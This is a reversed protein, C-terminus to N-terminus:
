AKHFREVGDAGLTRTISGGAELYNLHALVEGIAFSLQHTDLERRFLVPILEAGTRSTHTHEDAFLANVKEEDLADYRLAILENLDIFPTNTEKAVTEAFTAYGLADRSRVIKGDKWTKRPVLSCM